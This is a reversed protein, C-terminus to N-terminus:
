FLKRAIYFAKDEADENNTTKTRQPNNDSTAAQQM